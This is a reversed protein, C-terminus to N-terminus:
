LSYDYSEIPAYKMCQQISNSFTLRRMFVWHLYTREVISEVRDKVDNDHGTVFVHVM